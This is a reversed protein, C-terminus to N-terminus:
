SVVHLLTTRVRKAYMLFDLNEVTMQWFLAQLWKGTLYFNSFPEVNLGRAVPLGRFGAPKFFLTRTQAGTMLFADANSPISFFSSFFTDYRCIRLARVSITQYYFNDNLFLNYLFILHRNSKMLFVFTNLKIVSM